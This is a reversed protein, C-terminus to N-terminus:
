REYNDRNKEKKNIRTLRSNLISVKGKIDEYKVDLIKSVVWELTTIDNENFLDHFLNDSRVQLISGKKDKELDEIKDIM